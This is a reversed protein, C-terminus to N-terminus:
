CLGLEAEAEPCAGPDHPKREIIEFEFPTTRIIEQDELTAKVYWRYDHELFFMDPFFTYTRNARPRQMFRHIEDGHHNEVIVELELIEPTQVDVELDVEDWAVQSGPGSKDIDILEDVSLTSFARTRSYVVSDGDILGVRWEKEGGEVHLFEATLTEGLDDPVEGTERIEDDIMIFYNDFRSDTVNIGHSSRYSNFQGGEDPWLIDVSSEDVIKERQNDTLELNINITETRLRDGVEITLEDSDIPIYDTVREDQSQIEGELSNSGSEIRYYRNSETLGRANFEVRKVEGIDVESGNEMSLVSLEVPPLIDVDIFAWTNETEARIILNEQDHAELSFQDTEDYYDGDVSIEAETPEYTHTHLLDERVTYEITEGRTVWTQPGDLMLDGSVGILTQNLEKGQHTVAFEFTHSAPVYIEAVGESNTEEEFNGNIYIEAGALVEDNGDTITVNNLGPNPDEYLNHQIEQTAVYYSYIHYFAAAAILIVLVLVLVRKFKM